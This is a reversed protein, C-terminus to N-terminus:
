QRSGQSNTHAPQASSLTDTKSRNMYSSINKQIESRKADDISWCHSFRHGTKNCGFCQVNIYRQQGYNNNSNSNNNNNNSANKNDNGVQRSNNSTNINNNFQKGGRFGGRYGGCGNSENENNNNNNINAISEESNNVDVEM